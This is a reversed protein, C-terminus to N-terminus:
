KVESITFVIKDGLRSGVVTYYGGGSFLHRLSVSGVSRTTQQRGGSLTISQSYSVQIDHLGPTIIAHNQFGFSPTTNDIKELGVGNPLQLLCYEAAVGNRTWRSDNVLYDGGQKKMAFDYAAFFHGGFTNWDFSLSGPITISILRTGIFARTEIKIVSDPITVSTLQNSFFALSGITTVSDPITLSALKNYGFAERGITTVSNPIVISTLETEHFAFDGIATVSNPIVVSTLKAKHFVFDGIVQIGDPIVV